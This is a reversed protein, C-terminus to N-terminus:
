NIGVTAVDQLLIFIANTSIFFMYSYIPIFNQLFVIDISDYHPM